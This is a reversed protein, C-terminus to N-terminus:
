IDRRDHTGYFNEESTLFGTSLRKVREGYKESYLGNVSWGEAGTCVVYVRMAGHEDKVGQEIGVVKLPVGSWGKKKEYVISGTRIFSGDPLIAEYVEVKKEVM